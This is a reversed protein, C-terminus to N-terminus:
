GSVLSNVIHDVINLKKYYQQKSCGYAQFGARIPSLDVGRRRVVRVGVAALPMRLVDAFQDASHSSNRIKPLDDSVVYRPVIM